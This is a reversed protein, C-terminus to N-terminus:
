LPHRVNAGKALRLLQRAIVIHVVIIAAFVGALSIWTVVSNTMDIGGSTEPLTLVVVAAYVGVLGCCAGYAGLGALRAITPPMPFVM